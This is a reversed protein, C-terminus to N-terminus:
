AAVQHHRPVDAQDSQRRVRRLQVRHLVQPMVQPRVVPGIPLVLAVVIEPSFGDSAETGYTLVRFPEFADAIGLVYLTPCSSEPIRILPVMDISCNGTKMGVSTDGFEHSM